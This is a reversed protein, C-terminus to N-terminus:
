KQKNKVKIIKKMMTLLAITLFTKDPSVTIKLPLGLALPGGASRRKASELTEAGLNPLV